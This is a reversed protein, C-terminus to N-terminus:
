KGKRHANNRNKGFKKLDNNIKKIEEANKRTMEYQDANDNSNMLEDYEEIRMNLFYWNGDEKKELPATDIIKYMGAVKSKEKEYSEEELTKIDITNIEVKPAPNTDFQLSHQGHKDIEPLNNFNNENMSNM